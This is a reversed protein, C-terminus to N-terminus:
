TSPTRLAEILRALGPAAFGAAKRPAFAGTVLSGIIYALIATAEATDLADGSRRQIAAIETDLLRRVRAFLAPSRVAESFIGVWCRAAIVDSTHDLRLAGDGYARLPDEEREAAQVRERFRAVLHDLLAALMEEKDDFYHHLLGPALGAEAAVAAITAGAYGHEALVRAFAAVIQARRQQRKSPRGM